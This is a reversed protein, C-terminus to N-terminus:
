VKGGPKRYITPRVASVGDCIGNLSESHGIFLYGGPALQQVIRRVIDRKTEIDFYILVNRLFILDFMGVSNLPMSLNVVGFECRERLMPDICFYGDFRGVGKLCYRQLLEQSLGKARAMPYIGEVAQKLVETSIDSGFIQWDAGTGLQEVLVMAISYAEEGTSSAASWVRLPRNRPWQPLLQGALFAFHAEERFFYTEHTTLLDIMRELEDRGHSSQVLQLYQSYSTFGLHRLRKALRGSILPKKIPAFDIGLLERALRRFVEFEADSLTVESVVSAPPRRNTSAGAM